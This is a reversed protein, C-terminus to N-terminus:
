KPAGDAAGPALLRVPYGRYLVADYGRGAAEKSIESEDLYGKLRTRPYYYHIVPVDNQPVLLSKDTMGEDRIAALMAAPRPDISPPHAAIQRATNGAIVACLAALAVYRARWGAVAAGIVFGAFIQFAPLFPTLYRVGETKMRLLTLLMLVAFALFPLAARRHTWSKWRWYVVVAAVILIWDVPSSFLRVRWTELFTVEGWPARRFLVLYVMFMYSKLISLKLISAPWVVILAGLAVGASRFAFKWDLGLRKRELWAVLMLVPVLVFAVALTAFTVGCLAAAAYWYRREGTQLAKAAAVLTATTCLVFVQHPALEASSMTPYSWLFLSGAAIAPIRGLKAGLLWFAGAYILLFTTIPFVLTSARMVQENYKWPSLLALWYTYLPGHWHRYFNVDDYSRATSSLETRKGEATGYRLGMRAIEIVSRSPTDAYNGWLGMSAAYMYDSEDYSYPGAPIRAQVALLFVAVIAAVAVLDVRSM